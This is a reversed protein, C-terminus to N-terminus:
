NKGRETQKFSSYIKKAIGTLTAEYYIQINGLTLARTLTLSETWQDIVKRKDLAKELSLWIKHTTISVRPINDEPIYRKSNIEGKKAHLAKKRQTNLNEIM